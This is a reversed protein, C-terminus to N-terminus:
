SNRPFNPLYSNTSINRFYKGIRDERLQIDSEERHRVVTRAIGMAQALNKKEKSM